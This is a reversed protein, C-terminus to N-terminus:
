IGFVNWTMGNTTHLLLKLPYQLKITKCFSWWWSFCNRVKFINMFHHIRKFYIASKHIRFFSFTNKINKHHLLQGLIYESFDSFLFNIISNWWFPNWTKWLKIWHIIKLSNKRCLLIMISPRQSSYIIMM